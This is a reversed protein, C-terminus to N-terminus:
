IRALSSLVDQGSRAGALDDARVIVPRGTVLIAARLSFWVIPARNSALGAASSARIERYLVGPQRMVISQWM